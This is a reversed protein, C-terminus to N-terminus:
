SGQQTSNEDTQAQQENRDQTAAPPSGQTTTEPETKVTEAPAPAPTPIVAQVETKVPKAPPAQPQPPLLPTQTETRPEVKKDVAPAAATKAQKTDKPAAPVEDKLEAKAQTSQASEERETKGGQNSIRSMTEQYLRAKNPGLLDDIKKGRLRAIIEPRKLSVLGNLTAKAVNMVNDSGLSKALVDHIGALELVKRVQAGAILGTGTSAPKLMVRATSYQGIIQHPLTRGILPIQVLNKKGSEVAKAIAEPVENAKGFGLGVHGEGDGVAVLASFSFRRGGKVVKACRNLMIVEDRLTLNAPNIEAPPSIERNGQQSEKPKQEAQSASM